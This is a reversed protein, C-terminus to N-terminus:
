PRLVPAAFDIGEEPFFVGNRDVDVGQYSLIGLVGWADKCQNDSPFEVLGYSFTKQVCDSGPLAQYSRLVDQASADNGARELDTIMLAQFRSLEQDQTTSARGMKSQFFVGKSFQVAGVLLFAGVLIGILVEVLTFGQFDKSRRRQPPHRFMSEVLRPSGHYGLM